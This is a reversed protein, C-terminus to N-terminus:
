EPNRKILAYHIQILIEAENSTRWQKLLQVLPAIRYQKFLVSSPKEFHRNICKYAKFLYHHFYYFIVKITLRGSLFLSVLHAINALRRLKGLFLTADNFKFAGM